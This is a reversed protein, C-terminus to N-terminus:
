FHSLHPSAGAQGIYAALAACSHPARKNAQKVPKTGITGNGSSLCNISRFIRRKPLPSCWTWRCPAAATGSEPYIPEASRNLPEELEPKQYEISFECGMLTEGEADDMFIPRNQRMTKGTASVIACHRALQLGHKGVEKPCCRLPGGWM